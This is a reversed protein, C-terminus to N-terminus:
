QRYSIKNVQIIWPVVYAVLTFGIASSTYSNQLEAYSEDDIEDPKPGNLQSSTQYVFKFTEYTSYVGFLAVVMLAQLVYEFSKWKRKYALIFAYFYICGCIVDAMHWWTFIMDSLTVSGGDQDKAQQPTLHETLIYGLAIFFIGSFAYGTYLFTFAMIGPRPLLCCCVTPQKMNSM